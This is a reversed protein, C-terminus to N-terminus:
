PADRGIVGADLPARQVRRLTRGHARRTALGIPNQVFRGDPTPNLRLRVERQELLRDVRQDDLAAARDAHTRLAPELEAGRRDHQRGPREEGALDVDPKRLVRGAARAIRRRLLEGLRQALQRERDTPELGARRRADVAARDVVGREALLGAVIRHRHEREEARTASWGRWTLQQIM